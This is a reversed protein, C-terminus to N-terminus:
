TCVFLIVVGINKTSISKTPTKRDTKQSKKKFCNNYKGTLLLQNVIERNGALGNGKSIEYNWWQGISVDSFSLENTVFLLWM